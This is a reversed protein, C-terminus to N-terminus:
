FLKVTRTKNAQPAESFWPSPGNTLTLTVNGNNAATITGVFDGLNVPSLNDSPAYSTSNATGTLLQHSYDQMATAQLTAMAGDLAKMQAETQIDLYRPVALAALIGLVILVAIIEVLTFGKKDKIIKLM